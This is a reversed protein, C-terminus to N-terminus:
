RGHTILTPPLTIKGSKLAPAVAVDEPKVTTDTLLLQQLIAEQIMYHYFNSRPSDLSSSATPPAKPDLYEGLEKPGDIVRGKMYSVPRQPTTWFPDTIDTIPYIPIVGAIEKALPLPEVSLEKFGLGSGVILALWGGASSGSIFVKKNDARSEVLETFDKSQVFAVADRADSIIGPLRTQPAIRYDASVVTIGHENVARLLHPATGKRTGQLLGGGHWWVLVSRSPKSATAEDPVYVDISVDVGDVSKFVKEIPILQSM